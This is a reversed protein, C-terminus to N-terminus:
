KRIEIVFTDPDFGGRGDHFKVDYKNLVNMLLNYKEQSYDNPYKKLWWHNKDQATMFDYAWVDEIYYIGGKNLFHIMNIFTLRQADHTHLGDDIIVDYGKSLIKKVSDSPKTTSDHKIWDVRDHKLIKINKAPVRTFIDVGTINAKPFYDLWAEIGKGKFVGIELLNFEENKLHELAPEYIRDYRHKISGKDSGFKDFSELLTM